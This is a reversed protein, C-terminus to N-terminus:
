GAWGGIYALKHNLIIVETFEGNGRNPDYAAYGKSGMKIVYLTTPIYPSVPLNNMAQAVKVCTREDTVLTIQSVQVVPIHFVSDRLRIRATDTTTQYKKLRNIINTSKSSAARCTGAARAPASSLTSAILVAAALLVRRSSIHNSM